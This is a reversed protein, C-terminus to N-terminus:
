KQKSLIGDNLNLFHILIRYLVSVNIFNLVIIM